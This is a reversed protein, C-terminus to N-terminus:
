PSRARTLSEPGPPHPYRVQSPGSYWEFELSFYILVVHRNVLGPTNNFMTVLSLRLVHFVFVRLIPEDCLHQDNNKPEAPQEQYQFSEM